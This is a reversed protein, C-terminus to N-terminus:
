SEIGQRRVGSFGCRLREYRAIRRSGIMQGAPRELAEIQPSWQLLLLGVGAKEVALVQQIVDEAIICADSLSAILTRATHSVHDSRM